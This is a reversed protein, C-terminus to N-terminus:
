ILIEKWNKKKFFSFNSNVTCNFINENKVHTKLQNGCQELKNSILYKPGRKLYDFNIFKDYWKGEENKEVQIDVGFLLLPINGAYKKLLQILFVLTYNGKLHDENDRKKSM